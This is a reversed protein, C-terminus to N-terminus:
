LKVAVPAEEPQPTNAPKEEPPTKGLRVRRQHLLVGHRDQIEKGGRVTRRMEPVAARNAYETDHFRLRSLSLLRLVCPIKRAGRQGHKGTECIRRRQMEPMQHGHHDASHVQVESLGLLRHIGRVPWAKEGPRQRVLPM